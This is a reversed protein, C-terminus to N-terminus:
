KTEPLSLNRVSEAAGLKIACNREGSIPRQILVEYSAEVEDLHVAAAERMAEAGRQFADGAREHKMMEAHYARCLVLNPTVSANRPVQASAYQISFEAAEAEALRDIAAMMREQATIADINQRVVDFTLATVWPNEEWAGPGNIANWLNAYRLKPWGWDGEQPDFESM